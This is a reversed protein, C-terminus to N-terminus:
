APEQRVTVRYTGTAAPGHRRVRVYYVGAALDFTIRSQREPGIDDIPVRTLQSNPGFLTAIVETPGDIAITYTGPETAAFSYLHAVDVGDISHDTGPGNVAMATLPQPSPRGRVAVSYRGRNPGPDGHRIRVLYNGATLRVEMRRDADRDAGNSDVALTSADDPGYLALAADAVGEAEIVYIGAAAAVFQYHDQEGDTGIATCIPPAGVVLTVTGPPLDTDYRYGLARHHLLDRPRKTLSGVTLTDDLRHGVPGHGPELYPAHDPHREQWVAWLRDVNCAHLWFAPDNPATASAMTRGVWAHVSSHLVEDLVAAFRDFPTCGLVADLQAATPLPPTPGLRRRLAPGPDVPPSTEVLRWAGAAFAFPGTTVVEESGDGGGGLFDTSWLSSGGSRDVTWDWYPLTVTPDVAQLDLEFQHLFERNWALFAPGMRAPGGSAFVRRREAVYRDYAGNAKLQLLAGVFARRQEPTLRRHDKREGM